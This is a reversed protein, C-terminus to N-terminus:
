RYLDEFSRYSASDESQMREILAGAKGEQVPKVIPVM